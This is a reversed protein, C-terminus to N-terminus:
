LSFITSVDKVGAEDAFLRFENCNEEGHDRKADFHFYQFISALILSDRLSESEIDGILEMKKDLMSINHYFRNEDLYQAEVKSKWENAINESINLSKCVSKFQEM